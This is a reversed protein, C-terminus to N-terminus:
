GPKTLGLGEAFREEMIGVSDGIVRGVSRVNISYELTNPKAFNIRLGPDISVTDNEIKVYISRRDTNGYQVYADNVPV